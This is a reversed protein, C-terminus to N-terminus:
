TGRASGEWPPVWKLDKQTGSARDQPCGWPPTPLLTLLLSPSLTGLHGCLCVFGM